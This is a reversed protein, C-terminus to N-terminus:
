MYFMGAKKKFYYKTIGPRVPNLDDAKAKSEMLIVIPKCQQDLITSCQEDFWPKVGETASFKTHEEVNEWAGNIDRRDDSKEM